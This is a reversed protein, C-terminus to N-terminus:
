ERPELRMETVDSKSCRDLQRRPLEQWIVDTWSIIALGARRVSKRTRSRRLIGGGM